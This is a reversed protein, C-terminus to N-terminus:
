LIRCVQRLEWLMALWIGAALYPGLAFARGAHVVKIRILHLILALMCGLWLGTLVARWGLLLGCVAMLKIDGGGIARGSSLLYILYLFVSVSLFGIVYMSWDSLHLMLHILGLLLILLNIEYPIERTRFDIVGLILLASSFICYLLTDANVGNVLIILVCLCVSGAPILFRDRNTRFLINTM